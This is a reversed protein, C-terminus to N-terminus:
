RDTLRFEIRRNRAYAEPTNQADLPQYDAFGTAALRHPDIGEAVLLKVVTIARASSLEWNSPFATHIPQRDAHGDVRLIWPIDAPIHATVEKLTHALTTIEKRGEASLDASGVPFLVESQFVFRDGVVHVGKQNHLIDRLRGFFESRYRSLETVKNALATNLKAALDTIKADRAQVNKQSVDLAEGLAALRANLDTLTDDLQTIRAQDAVTLATAADATKKATEIAAADAALASADKQHQTQLGTVTDSLAHNRAHETDLQRSLEAAQGELKELVHERRNLAASLLTQGMVFVLLVFIVVMLLTSLADVYGPWADLGAHLKRRRRAM